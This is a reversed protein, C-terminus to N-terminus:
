VRGDSFVFIRRMHRMKIFQPRHIQVVVVVDLTNRGAM